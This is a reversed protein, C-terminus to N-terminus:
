VINNVVEFDDNEIYVVWLNIFYVEGDSEENIIVLGFWVLFFVVM